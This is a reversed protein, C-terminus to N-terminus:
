PSNNVYAPIQYVFDDRNAAPRRYVDYKKGHAPIYVYKAAYPFLNSLVIDAFQSLNVQRRYADLRMHPRTPCFLTRM